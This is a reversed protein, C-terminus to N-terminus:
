ADPAQAVGGDPKCKGVLEEDINIEDKGTIGLYAIEFATRIDLTDMTPYTQILFTAFAEYEPSELLLKEKNFVMQKRFRSIIQSDITQQIIKINKIAKIIISSSLM